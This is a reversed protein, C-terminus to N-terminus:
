QTGLVAEGFRTDDTAVVDDRNGEVIEVVLGYTTKVVDCAGPEVLRQAVREVDHVSREIIM